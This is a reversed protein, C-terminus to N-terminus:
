ERRLVALPRQGLLRYTGFFGVALAISPALLVGGLLPVPEFTWPVELVFRLVAWALLSGLLTGGVAALAGLCGYEVAFARAVAGRSAGLARWIVSEYLRQYRSAALAGAMVVLGAGITFLAIVRIGLAIRDLVAAVRELIDRVPLATVNPFAATIRDQLGREASPPVRVTAVWTAPAGDLAGPSLIMFFNTSLSNWDVRRHSAVRAELPVGQVDFTLTGGVGVGLYSAADEEVSVLLGAAAEAPTWWRGATVVTGPPPEGAFTLVYERTLYWTRDDQRARREELMARSVPRGNVAALRSRVVPTLTPATGGGATRVVSAFADKQDPQIDVFFFSPAERRQEHDIRRALSGELLAMAVLLMVGLGLALTVGVTQGGPRWLSAIGQRWAFGPPRPLSRALLVLARALAALLLLAIACAAIFIGGVKFSGAQWVALAACGLLVPLALLWRRRHYRPRAEVARRLILSAPVPRIELLPPLAGLLTTLIGMAIGRLLTWPEWRPELAFPVIGALARALLPSAALGALAGAASGLVGLALAQVVYTLLLTRSQAGLSKLIAITTLQRRIFTGAAAAVGIGGVLLSTLAVLRLYTTLEAFFTSLGAQREDFATVQIAPDQLRRALDGRTPRAPLTEPLRVLTRHRIRSGVRVLGTPELAGDSILVRPGLRLLSSRDPEAVLVGRVVFTSSGIALRDGVRLGLRALLEPQVLAGGGALLAPLPAPPTTVVAGYLPYGEAAARLEVMLTHGDAPSRVMAVLERVRTLEAGRRRLREVELEAARDLPRTSRLEIDGGLLAKAERGLGRHLDTAFGDVAVLAAVGLGVSAVLVVLHRWGGRTERWAMRLPFATM